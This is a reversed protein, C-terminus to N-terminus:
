KAYISIISVFVWIVSLALIPPDSFIMREPEEGMEKKHVLYLYRVTGLLVLPITLMFWGRHFLSAYLSYTTVFSSLALILVIDIIRLNYKHINQRTKSNTLLYAGHEAKRKGLILALALTVIAALMWPTIQTGIAIGGAYIRIVYFSVLFVSDLLLVHKAYKSYVINLSLYIFILIIAQYGVFIGFTISLLMLMAVLQRARTVEMLNAALPRYKKKPHLKDFEIDSIDNLVYVLSSAFCFAIFMYITNAVAISSVLKMSFILPLFILINKVWHWIRMEQFVAMTQDHIYGKGLM